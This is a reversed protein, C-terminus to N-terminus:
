ELCFIVYLSHTSETENDRYSGFRNNAATVTNDVLVDMIIAFLFGGSCKQKKNESQLRHLLCRGPSRVTIPLENQLHVADLAILHFVQLTNIPPIRLSPTQTHSKCHSHLQQQLPIDAAINVECPGEDSLM